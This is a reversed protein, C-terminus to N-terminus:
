VSPENPTGIPRIGLFTEFRNRKERLHIYNGEPYMLRYLRGVDDKAAWEVYWTKNNQYVHLKAVKLGALQVAQERLGELFLPTGLFRVHLDAKGATVCGDGDFFGRLFHGFSSDPVSPFPLDQRSKRPKLGYKDGLLLALDHATFALTSTQIKKGTEPKVYDSDSVQAYVGLEERIEELLYRYARRSNWRVVWNAPGDDICGDAWTYGVLYPVQRHWERFYDMLHDRLDNRQQTTTRMGDEYIFFGEQSRIGLLTSILVKNTPDQYVEVLVWGLIQLVLVRNRPVAKTDWLRGPAKM